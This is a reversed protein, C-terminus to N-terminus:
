LQGIFIWNYSTKFEADTEKFCFSHLGLASLEHQKTVLVNITSQVWGSSVTGLSPSLLLENHPIPPTAATM